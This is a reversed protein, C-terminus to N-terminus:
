APLDGALARRAAPAGALFATRAQAGRVVGREHFARGDFEELLWQQDPDQLARALMAARQAADVSILPPVPLARRYGPGLHEDPM